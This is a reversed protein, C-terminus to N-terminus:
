EDSEKKIVWRKGCFFLVWDGVEAKYHNRGNILGPQMMYTQFISATTTQDSEGKM